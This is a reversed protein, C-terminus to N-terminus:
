REPVIAQAIADMEVGGVSRLTRLGEGSSLRGLHAQTADLLRGFIDLDPSPNKETQSHDYRCGLSGWQYEAVREQPYIRLIFLSHPLKARQAVREEYFFELLRAVAHDFTLGRLLDSLDVKPVNENEAWYFSQRLVGLERVADAANVATDSGMLALLLRGADLWSMSAASRGRGGKTVLGAERLSRYHAAVTVPSLKLVKAFHEILEGSTAM